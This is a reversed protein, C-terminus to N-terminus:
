VAVTDYPTLLGGHGGHPGGTQRGPAENREILKRMEETTMGDKGRANVGYNRNVLQDRDCEAESIENSEKSDNFSSNNQDQHNRPPPPPPEPSGSIPLNRASGVSRRGVSGRSGYHDYPAGYQGYQSGYQDEEPACNAPDDYEPSFVNHTGSGGGQSPVRSYRGNQRPMSQSGSRSHASANTPHGVPPGMTGSHGNGPHPFTQFQMAKSPDMEERFGLLHFTAYPCIEDEMGRHSLGDASGM